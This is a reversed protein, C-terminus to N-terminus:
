RSQFANTPPLMIPLFFIAVMAEGDRSRKPREAVPPVACGALAITCLGIALLRKYM